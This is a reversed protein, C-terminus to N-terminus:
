TNIKAQPTTDHDNLFCRTMLQSQTLLWFDLENISCVTNTLAYPQLSNQFTQAHLLVLAQMMHRTIVTEGYFRRLVRYHVSSAFMNVNSKM